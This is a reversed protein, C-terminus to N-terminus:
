RALNRSKLTRHFVQEEIKPEDFTIEIWGTENNVWQKSAQLHGINKDESFLSDLFGKIINDIDPRGKHLKLHMSEKQWPRWSVPVPIFFKINAGQDPLMLGKSKALAALSEKYHNYKELRMLRKLGSPLLKHRPIRFFISDGQTVRVHTEPTINLRIIKRGRTGTQMGM